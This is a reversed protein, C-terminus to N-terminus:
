HKSLRISSSSCSYLLRMTAINVNRYLKGQLAISYQSSRTIVNMGSLGIAECTYRGADSVALADFHLLLTATVGDSNDTSVDTTNSIIGGNPSKWQLM